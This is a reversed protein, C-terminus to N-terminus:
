RPYNSELKINDLIDKAIKLVLFYPVPVGGIFSEQLFDITQNYEHSFADKDRPHSPGLYNAVRRVLVEKSMTQVIRKGDKNCFKVRVAESNLWDIFNSTRTLFGKSAIVREEETLKAGNLVLFKTFVIGKKEAKSEVGLFLKQHAIQSNSSLMEKNAVYSRVGGPMAAVFYENQDELLKRFDKTFSHSTFEQRSDSNKIYEFVETKMEMWLRLTHALDLLAVEDYNETCFDHHRRLRFYNIIIDEM